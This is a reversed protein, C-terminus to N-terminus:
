GEEGSTQQSDIQDIQAQMAALIDDFSQKELSMQMIHQMTRAWEESYGAYQANSLVVEQFVRLELDEQSLDEEELVEVGPLRLKEERVECLLVSDTDQVMRKILNTDLEQRDFELYGELRIIVVPKTTCRQWDPLWEQISTEVFHYLEAPSIRNTAHLSYSFFPRHEYDEFHVQKQGAPDIDVM